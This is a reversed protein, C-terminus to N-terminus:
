KIVVQGQSFEDLEMLIVNIGELPLTGTAQDGEVLGWGKFVWCKEM